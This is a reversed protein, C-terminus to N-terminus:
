TGIACSLSTFSSTDSSILAPSLIKTTFPLKYYIHRLLSARCFAIEIDDREREEFHMASVLSTLFRALHRHM